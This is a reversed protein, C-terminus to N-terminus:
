NCEKNNKIYEQMLDRLAESMTKYNSNCTQQFRNILTIPVRITINKDAREKNM